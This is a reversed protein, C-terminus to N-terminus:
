GVVAGVVRVDCARCAVLTGFDSSSMAVRLRTATLGASKPPGTCYTRIRFEINGDPTAKEVSHESWTGWPHTAPGDEEYDSDGGREKM